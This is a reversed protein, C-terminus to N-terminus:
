PSGRLGAFRAKMFQDYYQVWSALRFQGAAVFEPMRDALHTMEKPDTLLEYVEVRNHTTDFIFKLHGERYGFLFKSWRAYIYM